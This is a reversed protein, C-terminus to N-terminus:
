KVNDILGVRDDTNNLTEEVLFKGCDLAIKKKVEESESENYLKYYNELIDTARKNYILESHEIEAHQTIEGGENYTVVPIGKNTVQSSIEEPLNHKRAHLAGEPIVNMKGGQEFKNIDTDIQIKIGRNAKKVLNRLDSPNIKAGKKAALVNTNYGGLLSQQNKAINDQFTNQASLINQNNQFTANGALLNQRDDYGTLKNIQKTKGGWTGFLTQKKGAKSNLNFNYAGTDLGITGQKKATTGGFRNLYDLGKLVGAGAIVYPNGSKLAFNLALDTGKSFAQEGGSIDDAQKGVLNLGTDIASNAINGIDAVSPSLANSTNKNLLKTIDKSFGSTIKDIDPGGTVTVTKTPRM